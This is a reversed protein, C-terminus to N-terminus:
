FRRRLQKVRTVAVIQGNVRVPNDKPGTGPVYVDPRTHLDLCDGVMGSVILVVGPQPEPLDIVQGLTDGTFEECIGAFPSFEEAVKHGPLNDVRPVPLHKAPPIVTTVGEANTLHLPHPTLNLITVNTM